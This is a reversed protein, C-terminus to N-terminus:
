LGDPTDCDFWYSTEVAADVELADLYLGSSANAGGINLTVVTGCPVQVSGPLATTGRKRTVTCALTDGTGVALFNVKSASPPVNLTVVGVALPSPTTGDTMAPDNLVGTGYVAM